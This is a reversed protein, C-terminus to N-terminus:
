PVAAACRKSVNIAGEVVEEGFPVAASRMFSKGARGVRPSTAGGGCPGQTKRPAFAEIRLRPAHNVDGAHEVPDIM